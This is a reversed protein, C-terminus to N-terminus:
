FPLLAGITIGLIVLFLGTLKTGWASHKRRIADLGYANIEDSLRELDEAFSKPRLLAIDCFERLAAKERSSLPDTFPLKNRTNM